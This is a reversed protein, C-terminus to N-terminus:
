SLGMCDGSMLCYFFRVTCLVNLHSERARRFYTQGEWDDAMQDVYRDCVSEISVFQEIEIWETM